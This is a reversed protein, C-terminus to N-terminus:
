RYTRRARSKDLSAQLRERAKALKAEDTEVDPDTNTLASTGLQKKLGGIMKDEASKAGYTSMAPKSDIPTKNGQEDGPGFKKKTFYKLQAGTEAGLVQTAHGLALFARDHDDSTFQDGEIRGVREGEEDTGPNALFTYYDDVLQKAAKRGKQEGEDHWKSVAQLVAMHMAQLKRNKTQRFESQGSDFEDEEQINVQRKIGTAKEYPSSFYAEQLM